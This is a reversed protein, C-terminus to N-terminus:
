SVAPGLQVRIGAAERSLEDMQRRLQERQLRQQLTRGSPPGLDEMADDLRQLEQAIETLRRRAAFQANDSSSQQQQLSIGPTPKDGQNPGKGGGAGEILKQQRRFLTIAAENDPSVIKAPSPQLQVMMTTGNSSSSSASPANHVVTVPNASQRFVLERLTDVQARLAAVEDQAARAASRWHEIQQRAAGAEADARGCQLEAYAARRESEAARATLEERLAAEEEREMKSRRESEQLQILLADREREAKSLRAKLSETEVVTDKRSHLFTQSDAARSSQIHDNLTEVHMNLATIERNKRSLEDRLKDLEDQRSDMAVKLRALEEEVMFLMAANGEAQRRMNAYMLAEDDNEVSRHRRGGGVFHQGDDTGLSSQRSHTSARFRDSRRAGEFHVVHEEDRLDDEYEYSVGLQQQARAAAEQLVKLPDDDKAAAVRRLVVLREM